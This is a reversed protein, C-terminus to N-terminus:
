PAEYAGLDVGAGSVRANGAFDEAGQLSAGWVAPCTWGSPCGGTAGLDKAKALAGAALHLDVAVAGNPPSGPTVFVNAVGSTFTLDHDLTLGTTAGFILDGTADYRVNNRFISATVYYQLTLEVTNAYFTNNVFACHDTGGRAADYGGMSAGTGGSFYILNNRALVYSTAKGAHESALEIGIDCNRVLNREILLNRGGDVYIGDAALEGGYAPNKASSIAYVVNGRIVGNRAADLATTPATGEAGIAVIGINDNDHVTNGSVEFGDVNGNISLSESCGTKLDHLKSGTIVLQSIPTTADGYVAIGFANGGAGNCSEVTSVIHHVDVNEVRVDVSAGHVFIGVPVASTSSTYNRVELGRIVLHSRGDVDLLGQQDKLAVGTGDIVAAEGPMNELVIPAGAAGSVGVAVSEHFVGARVRVTAGAPVTKMAHGITKWPETLSGAKADDGSPAVYYIPGTPTADPSTDGTADPSTDAAVVADGADNADFGADDPPVSGDADAAIAADGTDAADEIVPIAAGSSGCGLLALPFAVLLRRALPRM